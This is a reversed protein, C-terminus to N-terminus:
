REPEISSAAASPGIKLGRVHKFSKDAINTFTKEVFAEWSGGDEDIAYSRLLEKELGTLESVSTGFIKAAIVDLHTVGHEVLQRPYDLKLHMHAKVFCVKLLEKESDTLQPGSQLDTQLHLLQRLWRRHHGQLRASAAAATESASATLGELVEKATVTSWPKLNEIRGRPQPPQLRQEDADMKAKKYAPGPGLVDESCNADVEKREMDGVGLEVHCIEELLQALCIIAARPSPEEPEPEADANADADPQLSRVDSDVM